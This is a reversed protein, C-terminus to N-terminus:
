FTNISVEKHYFAQLSDGWDTLYLIFDALEKEQKSAHRFHSIVIYGLVAM